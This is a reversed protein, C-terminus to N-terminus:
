EEGQQGLTFPLEGQDESRLVAKKRRVDASGTVGPIVKGRPDYLRGNKLILTDGYTTDKFLAFAGNKDRMLARLSLNQISFQSLDFQHPTTPAAGLEQFPDRVSAATYIDSPSLTTTSLVAQAPAAGPKAALPAAPAASAASAWLSVLLACTRM